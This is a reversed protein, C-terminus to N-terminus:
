EYCKDQMLGSVWQVRPTVTKGIQCSPLYFVIQYSYMIFIVYCLETNIHM